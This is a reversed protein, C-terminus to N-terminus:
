NPVTTKVSTCGSHVRTLILKVNPHNIVWRKLKDLKQYKPHLWRVTAQFHQKPAMIGNESSRLVLLETTKKLFFFIKLLLVNPSKAFHKACMGCLVCVLSVERCLSSYLPSGLFKLPPLFMLYHHFWLIYIDLSPSFFWREVIQKCSSTGLERGDNEVRM